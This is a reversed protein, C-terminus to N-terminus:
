KAALIGELDREIWVKVDERYQNLMDIVTEIM